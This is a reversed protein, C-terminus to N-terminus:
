RKSGGQWRRYKQHLLWAAPATLAADVPLRFRVHAFFIMHVLTMALALTAIGWVESRSRLQWLGALGLLLLPGSSILGVISRLLSGEQVYPNWFLIFKRASLGVTRLPDSLMWGVSEFLAARDREVPDPSAPATPLQEIMSLYDVGHRYSGTAEPENGIMLNMGLNSSILVFQGTVYGNRVTWSLIVAAAGVLIMLMRGVRRARHFESRRFWGVLLLPMWVLVVPKCLAAMGLVLGFIACNLPDPSREVHIAMVLSAMVLTVLLTEAMIVASFFVSTPYIAGLGAALLGVRDSASQEDGGLQRGIWFMMACTITGLLAQSLRVAMWQHGVLSYLGAVTLAFLPPRYTGGDPHLLGSHWFARAMGDWSREDSSDSLGARTLGFGARLVFAGLLVVALIRRSKPDPSIWGLSM